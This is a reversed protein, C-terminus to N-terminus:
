GLAERDDHHGPRQTGPGHVDDAGVVNGAGAEGDLMEGPEPVPRDDMHVALACGAGRFAAAAVAGGHALQSQVGPSAEDGASEGFVITLLGGRVQKGVRWGGCDGGEVVVARSAQHGGGAGASYTYRVLQRQDAVVVALDGAQGAHCQGGDGLVCWCEGARREM